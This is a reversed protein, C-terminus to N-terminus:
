VHARGIKSNAAGKEILAEGKQINLVKAAKLIPTLEEASVGKLMAFQQLDEVSMGRTSELPRDLPVPKPSLDATRTMVDLLGSRKGPGAVREGWRGLRESTSAAAVRVATWTSVSQRM